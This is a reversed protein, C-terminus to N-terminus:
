AKVKNLWSWVIGVGAVAVAVLGTMMDATIFADFGVAGAVLTLVHRFVGAFVSKMTEDM